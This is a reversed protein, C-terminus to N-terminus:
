LLLERVLLERFFAEQAPTKCQCPKFLIRFFTLILPQFGQHPAAAAGCM